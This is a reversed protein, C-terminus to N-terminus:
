SFQVFVPLLVLLCTHYFLFAFVFTVPLLHSFRPVRWGHKCSQPIPLLSKPTLAFPYRLAAFFYHLVASAYLRPSLIRHQPHRPRHAPTLFLSLPDGVRVQVGRRALRDCLTRHVIPPLHVDGHVHLSLPSLLFFLARQRKTKKKASQSSHLPSFSWRSHEPVCVCVSCLVFCACGLFSISLALLLEAAVHKVGSSFKFCRQLCVLCLYRTTQM